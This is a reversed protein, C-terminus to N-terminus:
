TSRSLLGPMQARRWATDFRTGEPPDLLECFRQNTQGRYHYLMEPMRNHFDGHSADHVSSACLSIGTDAMTTDPAESVRWGAPCPPVSPRRAPVDEDLVLQAEAIAGRLGLYFRDSADSAKALSFVRDLGRRGLWLTSDQRFCPSEMAAHWTCRRGNGPECRWAATEEEEPPEGSSCVPTPQPKRPSCPLATSHFYPKPFRFDFFRLAPATNNGSVFRETGYVLLPGGAHYPQFTDRYVADYPSPSRVDMLRFSGDHWSSLLLNSNHRHGVAQMSWVTTVDPSHSAPAFELGTPRMTGHRIPQSSAGLAVAIGTGGLFKVDRILSEQTSISRGSRGGDRSMDHFAPPEPAGAERELPIRRLHLRSGRCTALVDAAPHWEACVVAMRGPSIGSPPARPRADRRGDGDADADADLGGAAETPQGFSEDNAASLIQVDGNARGVVVEPLGARREMVKLCTADGTGPAYGADRGLISRWAQQRARQESDDRWRVHVDEGGGWAVVEGGLSPVDLADVVGHFDIAQRPRRAAAAKGRPAPQNQSRFLSLRIARKDWCRDLYSLLDAVSSWSRADGRPVQLSPFRTKVFTKWGAQQVVHHTHKSVLGLHSTGRATDVHQVIALLLDDPLSALSAPAM